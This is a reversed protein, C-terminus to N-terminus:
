NKRIYDNIDEDTYEIIDQCKCCIKAVSVNGPRWSWLGKFYIDHPCATRIKVLEEQANKIIDFLEDVRSM